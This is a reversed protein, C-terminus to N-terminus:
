AAKPWTEAGSKLVVWRAALSFPEPFGDFPRMQQPYAGRVRGWFSPCAHMSTEGRALPQTKLLM